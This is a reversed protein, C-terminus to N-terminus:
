CPSPCVQMEDKRLPQVIILKDAPNVNRRPVHPVNETVGPALHDVVNSFGGRGSSLSPSSERTGKRDYDHAVAAAATAPSSPSAM